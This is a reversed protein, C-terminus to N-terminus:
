TYKNMFHAVQARQQPSVYLQSSSTGYSNYTGRETEHCRYTNHHSSRYERETPFSQQLDSILNQCFPDAASISAEIKEVQAKLLRLSQTYDREEMAQRLVRATEVRNRQVDITYNVALHDASLQPARILRFSVPETTITRGSNPEVYDISVRGLCLYGIKENLARIIILNRRLLREALSGFMAAPPSNKEIKIAGDSPSCM